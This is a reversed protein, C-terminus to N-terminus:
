LVLPPYCEAKLRRARVSLKREEAPRKRWITRMDKAPPRPKRWEYPEVNWVRAARQLQRFCRAVIQSVRERSCQYHEGLERLSHREHGGLGYYRQMVDLANPGLAYDFKRLLLRVYRAEIEYTM